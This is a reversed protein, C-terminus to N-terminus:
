SEVRVEFELLLLEGQYMLLSNGNIEYRTVKGLAAFFDTEINQVAECYMKTSFLNGIQLSNDNINVSGGFSNCSGNGSVRKQTEDFRIFANTYIYAVGEKDHIAKLQWKSNYLDPKVTTDTRFSTFLIFLVAIVTIQKM